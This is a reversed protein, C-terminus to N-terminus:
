ESEMRLYRNGGIWDKNMDRLISGAVRMFSEPSPFAGVKRMRRKIELNVREMINTTRIKKWHSGPFARYNLIDQAFREIAYSASILGREHLEAALKYLAEESVMAESLSLSIEQKLNNPVHKLVIRKFHVQCM